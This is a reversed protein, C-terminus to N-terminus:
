TLISAICDSSKLERFAVGVNLVHSSISPLKTHMSHLLTFVLLYIYTIVILSHLNDPTPFFGSLLLLVLNKKLYIDLSCFHIYKKEIWVGLYVSLKVFDRMVM